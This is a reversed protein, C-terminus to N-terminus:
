PHPSEDHVNEDANLPHRRDAAHDGQGSVTLRDIRLGGPERDARVLLAGDLLGHPEDLPEASGHGHHGQPRNGGLFLKARAEREPRRRRHQKLRRVAHLGPRDRRRRRKSGHGSGTKVQHQEPAFCMM